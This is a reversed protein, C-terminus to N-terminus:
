TYMSEIHVFTRIFCKTETGEIHNKWALFSRQTGQIKQKEACLFLRGNLLIYTQMEKFNCSCSVYLLIYSDGTHFHGYENKDLAVVQMKQLM